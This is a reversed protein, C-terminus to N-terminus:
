KKRWTIIIVTVAFIIMLLFVICIGITDGSNSNRIINSTAAHMALPAGIGIM